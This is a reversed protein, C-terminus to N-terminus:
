KEWAFRQDNSREQLGYPGNVWTMSGNTFATWNDAKRWVMLGTTTQQLSDGNAGYHENELPQGAIDPILSALTAFGLRFAPPAATLAAPPASPAPVTSVPAADNVLLAYDGSWPTQTTVTHAATDVTSPLDEWHGFNRAFRLTAESRGGLDAPNYRLTLTAPQNLSVVASTTREILQLTFPQGVMITNSPRPPLNNEGNALLHIALATPYASAPAVWHFDGNDAYFEGGNIPNFSGEQYPDAFSTSTAAFLACIVLVFVALSRRM